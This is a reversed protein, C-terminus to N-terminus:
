ASVAEGVTFEVSVPPNARPEITVRWGGLVAVDHVSIGSQAGDVLRGLLALFHEDRGVRCVSRTWDAQLVAYRKAMELDRFCRFSVGDMVTALYEPQDVYVMYQWRDGAEADGYYALREGVDHNSLLRAEVSETTRSTMTRTPTGIDGTSM